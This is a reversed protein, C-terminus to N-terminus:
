SGGDSSRSDLWPIVKIDRSEERRALLSGFARRAEEPDRGEEVAEEIHQRMEEDLERSV